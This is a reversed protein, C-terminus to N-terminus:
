PAVTYLETGAINNLGRRTQLHWYTGYEWLGDPKVNVFQAHSHALWDLVVTVDSWSTDYIRETFNRTNLDELLIFYEDGPWLMWVILPPYVTAVTQNHSQYWHTEVQYSRIKRQKSVSGSFGRPHNSSSPIQIHKVIVSTTSGGSLHIRCLQGYNNWLNQILDISSINDASTAKLIRQQVTKNSAVEAM